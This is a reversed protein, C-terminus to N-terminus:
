ATKGEQVTKRSARVVKVMGGSSIFIWFISHCRDLHRSKSNSTAPRKRAPIASIAASPPELRCEEARGAKDRGRQLPLSMWEGLRLSTFNERRSLTRGDTPKHRFPLLLAM